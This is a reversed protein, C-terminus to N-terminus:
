ILLLFAITSRVAGGEQEQKTVHRSLLVWLTVNSQIAITYQPNESGSGVNADWRGHVKTRWQFLEPNWSVHVKPLYFLIDDWSMWFIGNDEAAFHGVDYGVEERFAPDSWSHEDHPSFRGNWGQIRPIAFM